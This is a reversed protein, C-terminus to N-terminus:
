EPSSPSALPPADAAIMAVARDLADREGVLVVVDGEAFRFRPDPTHFPMGDRIAAVVVAGTQRRLDLTVPNEGVAPSGPGVDVMELANHIMLDRLVGSRVDTEPKDRFLGYREGRVAEVEEHITEPPIDYRELLKAFLELAAEYEEVVVDSAGLRKLEDISSVYRTRVIIHVGANLDRAVAVGRREEVPASISFVIVRARDIRFRNLVERRTGDGFYIPVRDERATRVIQGNQELVVYPFGSAKLVRALYRGGLGYGVIIAHDQLTAIFPREHQLTEHPLRGQWRVVWESVPRSVAIVFPALFMSLAFSGLVVQSLELPLLGYPEAAGALVFSFEGVQALALAALVSVELSRRVILGVGVMVLTKLVLIVVTALLVLPLQDVLVRLDLLMGVSIFFIGSFADRFPLVDSMAQLGYESESIVLGALFAGIAPELGLAVSVYAAALGFLAIALTFLEHNRLGIIRALVFPVVFRGVAVLATLAVLSLAVRALGEVPIPGGGAALVPLLVLVPVIALDQFILIAVALRGHPTDLEGRDTYLKLVIATSSFAVLAGLLLAQNFPRGFLLLIAAAAGITAVLQLGGAQMLLRGLRVLRALSLELGIAFLLLVVGLEALGSVEEVDAIFGFGAPGVAVGTALFGVIVPIRIRQAIAVVPIAVAFLVVLDRLLNHGDM